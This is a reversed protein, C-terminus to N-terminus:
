GRKYAVTAALTGTVVVNIGASVGFPLPYYTGAMPAFAAVVPTATGTGADDYIAITAGSASAVFIGGLIGDSNCVNGSATIPKYSYAETVINM